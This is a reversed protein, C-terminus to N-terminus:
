LFCYFLFCLFNFIYYEGINEWLLVVLKKCVLTYWVALSSNECTIPLTATGNNKRM